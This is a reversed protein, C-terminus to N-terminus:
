LRRDWCSFATTYKWLARLNFGSYSFIVVGRGYIKHEDEKKLYKDARVSIPWSYMSIFFVLAAM